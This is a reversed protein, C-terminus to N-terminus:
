VDEPSLWLEFGWKSGAAGPEHDPFLTRFLTEISRDKGVIGVYVSLGDLPNQNPLAFRANARGEEDVYCGVRSNETVGPVDEAEGPRGDECGLGEDRNVGYEALRNFYLELMTARNPFAFVGMLQVGSPYCEIGDLAAEPLQAARDCTPRITEDVGALLYLQVSSWDAISLGGANSTASPRVPSSVPADTARESRTGSPLSAGEGTSASPNATQCGVAALVFLLIAGARRSFRLSARLM